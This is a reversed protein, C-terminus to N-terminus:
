PSMLSVDKSSSFSALKAQTKWKSASPTQPPGMLGNTRKAASGKHGAKAPRKRKRSQLYVHLLKQKIAFLWHDDLAPRFFFLTNLPHLSIKTHVSSIQFTLSCITHWTVKDPSPTDPEDAESTEEESPNDDDSGETASASEM